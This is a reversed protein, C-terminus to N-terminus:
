CLHILFCTAYMFYLHIFHMFAFSVFVSARPVTEMFTAMAKCERGLRDLGVEAMAAVIVTCAYFSSICM